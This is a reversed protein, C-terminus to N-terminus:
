TKSPPNQVNLQRDFTGNIEALRQPMVREVLIEKPIPQRRLQSMVEAIFQPLPMNQPNTAHSPGRLNTQVAPPAIEVVNIPMGRLQCRLSITYSHMAAKTACYTPTEAIPVFALGSTTNVILAQRQRQLLPLLAATVRIQGNLNTEVHDLSESLDTPQRGITEERMIGANNFLMNLRPHAETVQAAFRRVAEPDRVDLTMAIMGPNAAATAELVARKRSAIIVTNDMRQLAEALGRGIGTGGGTILITNGSMKMPRNQDSGSNPDTARAAGGATQAVAAQGFMTAMPILATAAILGRRTLPTGCNPMPQDEDNSDFVSDSM